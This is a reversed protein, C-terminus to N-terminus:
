LTSHAKSRELPAGSSSATPARRRADGSLGHMAGVHPLASSYGRPRDPHKPERIEITQTRPFTGTAPSTAAPRPPDMTRVRKFERQLDLHPPPPARGIIAPDSMRRSRSPFTSASASAPVSTETASIPTADDKSSSGGDSNKNVVLHGGELKDTGAGNDNHVQHISSTSSTDDVFVSSAVSHIRSMPAGEVITKMLPGTSLSQRDISNTQEMALSVRRTRRPSSPTEEIINIPVPSMAMPSDTRTATRELIGDQSGQLSTASRSSNQRKSLPLGENGGAGDNDDENPDDNKNNNNNNRSSSQVFHTQDDKGGGNSDISGRPHIGGNESLFGGVNMQNVRVPEDVRRIMDVRLRDRKRKKPKNQQQNNYNGHHKNNNSGNPTGSRSSNGNGTGNFFTSTRSTDGVGAEVGGNEGNGNGFHFRHFRSPIHLHHNHHSPDNNPHALRHKEEEAVEIDRVRRRARPDTKIMHEFRKKFFHRRIIITVISVAVINGSLMLIFLIAQQGRSINEMLVPNLGTVTLASTCVTLCNIYSNDRTDIGYFISSAILPVFTFVMLHVTTIFPVSLNLTLISVLNFAVKGEFPRVLAITDTHHGEKTAISM